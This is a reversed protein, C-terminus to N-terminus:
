SEARGAVAAEALLEAACRPCLGHSVEGPQWTREGRAVWLDEGARFRGCWACVSDIAKIAAGALGTPGFDRM